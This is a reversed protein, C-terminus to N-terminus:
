IEGSGTMPRPSPWCFSHPSTKGGVVEVQVVKSMEEEIGVGM